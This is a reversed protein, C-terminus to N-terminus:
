SQPFWQDIYYQSNLPYNNVTMQLLFDAQPEQNTMGVYLEEVTVDDTEQELVYYAVWLGEARTTNTERNYLEWSGNATGQGNDQRTQCIMSYQNPDLYTPIARESYAVLTSIPLIFDQPFGPRSYGFNLTIFPGDEVDNVTPVTLIQHPSSGQIQAITSNLVSYVWFTTPVKSSADNVNPSGTRLYGNSDYRPIGLADKTKNYETSNQVHILTQAGSPLIAYVAGLGAKPLNGAGKKDLKSDANFYQQFVGGAYISSGGTFPGGDTWVGNVIIWIHDSYDGESDPTPMVIADNPELTAPDYVSALNDNYETLVAIINTITTIIRGDKGDKGNTGVVQGLNTQVGNSYNILLQGNSIRVNTISVGDKGKISGKYVWKDTEWQYVDGREVELRQDGDKLLSPTYGYNATPYSYWRTSTGPEGKLSAKQEATLDDWTLPKGEPGQVILDEIALWYPEPHTSDARTYIYLSYPAETGVFFADGYEFTGTPEEWTEMTGIVRVDLLELTRTTNYHNQIDEKNKLVQEQLNRLVTGDPLKIAM